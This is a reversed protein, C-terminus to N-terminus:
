NAGQYIRRKLLKQRLGGSRFPRFMDTAENVFIKYHIDRESFQRQKVEKLLKIKSVFSYPNFVTSLLFPGLLFTYHASNKLWFTFGLNSIISTFNGTILILNLNPTIYKRPLPISIEM